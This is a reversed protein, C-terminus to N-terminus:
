SELKERTIQTEAGVMETQSEVAAKDLGEDVGESSTFDTTTMETRNEAKIAGLMNPAALGSGAMGM